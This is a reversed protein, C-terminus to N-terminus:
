SSYEVGRERPGEGDSRNPIVGVASHQLRTTLKTEGAIPESAKLEFETGCLRGVIM